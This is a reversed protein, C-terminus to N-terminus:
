RDGSEDTADALARGDGVKEPAPERGRRREHGFV